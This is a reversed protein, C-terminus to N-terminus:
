TVFERKSNKIFVDVTPVCKRIFENKFHESKCKEEEQREDM